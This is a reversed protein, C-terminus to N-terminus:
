QQRLLERVCNMGEVGAVEVLDKTNIVGQVQNPAAWKRLIGLYAVLKRSPMDNRQQLVAIVRDLAGPYNKIVIHEDDSPLLVRDLSLGRFEVYRLKARRFDVNIMENAPYAEGKFARRYFLVRLLEGEFRCDSFASTQFDVKELKTNRFTCRDFSTATYATQRLDTQTFDVGSYSNRRGEHVGGLASKRLNAGQFSADSIKTSWLRLDQLQCNEFRCNEIECGFLRLGNLKSDSFDLNRWKAGQIIAGPDIEAIPIKRFQFRRVISPEPLELNRLDTRGEITSLGLGNLAKGQILHDWIELNLSENMM